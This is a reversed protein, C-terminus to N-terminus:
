KRDEKMYDKNHLEYNQKLSGYYDIASEGISVKDEKLKRSRPMFTKQKAAPPPRIGRNMRSTYHPPIKM